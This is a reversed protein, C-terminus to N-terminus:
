YINLWPQLAVIGQGQKCEGGSVVLQCKLGVRATQKFSGACYIQLYNKRFSERVQLMTNVKGKKSKSQISNACKIM